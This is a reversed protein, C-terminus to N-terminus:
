TLDRFVEGSKGWFFGSVGIVSQNLLCSLFGKNSIILYSRITLRNSDLTELSVAFNM